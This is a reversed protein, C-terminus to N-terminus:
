ELYHKFAYFHSHMCCCCFEKFSRQERRLHTHCICVYNILRHIVTTFNTFSHKNVIIYITFSGCSLSMKQLFLFFFINVAYAVLNLDVRLRNGWATVCYTRYRRWPPNFIDVAEVYDLIFAMMISAISSYSLFELWWYLTLPSTYL